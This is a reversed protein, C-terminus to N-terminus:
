QMKEDSKAIQDLFRNNESCFFIWKTKQSLKQFREQCYIELFILFILFMLVM